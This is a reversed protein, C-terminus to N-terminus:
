LMIFALTDLLVTPFPWVMQRLCNPHDERLVASLRNNKFRPSEGKHRPRIATLIGMQVASRLVRYLRRSNLGTDLLNYCDLGAIFRKTCRLLGIM